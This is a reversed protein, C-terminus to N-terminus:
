EPPLVAGGPGQGAATDATALMEEIRFEGDEEVLYTAASEEGPVTLAVVAGRETLSAEGVEAQILKERFQEYEDIDGFKGSFYRAYAQPCSDTGTTEPVTERIATGAVACFAEWDKAEYAAIADTVVERAEEGRQEEEDEGCAALTVAFIAALVAAASRM